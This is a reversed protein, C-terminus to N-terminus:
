RRDRAHYDLVASLAPATRDEKAFLASETTRFRRVHEIFSDLSTMTATGTRRLPHARWKDFAAPDVVHFGDRDLTALAPTEDDPSRLMSVGPRANESAWETARKLLDAVGEPTPVTHIIAPPLPPRATNDTPETM